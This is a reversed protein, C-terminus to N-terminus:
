ESEARYPEVTDATMAYSFAVRSEGDVYRVTQEKAEASPGESTGASQQIALLTRLARLQDSSLTSFPNDYAVPAPALDDWGIARPESALGPVATAWVTLAVLLHKSLTM